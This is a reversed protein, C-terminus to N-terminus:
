VLLKQFILADEFSTRKKIWSRLSGCTNFGCREFVAISSLNERGIVAWLQHMALVSDAYACILKLAKAGYGRNRFAVSIYIGCQARSNVADIDTLDVCGVTAGTSQEVIMMRLEGARLPDADYGTAYNWIQHRSLPAKNCGYRWSDSDNEWIFLCDVDAPEVARLRIVDDSLM